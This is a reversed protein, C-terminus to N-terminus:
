ELVGGMRCSVVLSRQKMGLMQQWRATDSVNVDGQGLACVQELLPQLDIGRPLELVLFSRGIWLLKARGHWDARLRAIDASPGALHVLLPQDLMEARGRVLLDTGGAIQLDVVVPLLDQRYGAEGPFALGLIGLPARERRDELLESLGSVHDAHRLGEDNRGFASPVRIISSASVGFVLAAAALQWPLRPKQAIALGLILAFWPALPRWYWGQTGGVAILQLLSLAVTLLGLVMLRRHLSDRPRTAALAFPAVLLVLVDGHRLSSLLASAAERAETPAATLAFVQAPEDGLLAAAVRLIQPALVLLFAGLGWTRGRPQVALLLVTPAAFPHNMLAMALCLGLAVQSRRSNGLALSVVAAAGWEAALYTEHGSVGTHLLEEGTTLVVAALLPGLSRGTLTRGAVFVLPALLAQTLLRRFGADALGDAGLVFPLHSLDRGYGFHFFGPHTLEFGDRLRLAGRLPDLSDAVTGTLGELPIRLAVGLALLAAALAYDRPRLPM